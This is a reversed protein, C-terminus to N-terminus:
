FDEELKLPFIEFAIKNWELNFPYSALINVFVSTSKNTDAKYAKSTTEPALLLLM